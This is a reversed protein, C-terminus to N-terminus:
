LMWPQIYYYGQPVLLIFVTITFSDFRTEGNQEALRRQWLRQLDSRDLLRELDIDSIVESSQGYGDIIKDYTVAKLLEMVEEPTIPKFNAQFNQSKFKGLFFLWTSFDIYKLWKLVVAQETIVSYAM